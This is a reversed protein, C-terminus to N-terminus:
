AIRRKYAATAAFYAVVLNGVCWALTMWIERGVPQQAFLARITDVISTVPQSEAFWQVPGPMTGTPVFASSLQTNPRYSQPGVTRAIRRLRRQQRLRASREDACNASSTREIVQVFRFIVGRRDAGNSYLGTEVM